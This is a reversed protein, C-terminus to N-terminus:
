LYGKLFELKEIIVKAQKELRARKVPGANEYQKEITDLKKQLKKCQIHPLIDSRIKM